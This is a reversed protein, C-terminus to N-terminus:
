DSQGKSNTEKYNENRINNTLGHGKEKHGKISGLAEIILYSTLYGFVPVYIHFGEKKKCYQYTPYLLISKSNIILFSQQSVCDVTALFHCNQLKWILVKDYYTNQLFFPIKCKKYLFKYTNSSWGLLVSVHVSIIITHILYTIRKQNVENM